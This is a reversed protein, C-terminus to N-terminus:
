CFNQNEKDFAKIFNTFIVDTSFYGCKDYINVAREFVMNIVRNYRHVLFDVILKEFM